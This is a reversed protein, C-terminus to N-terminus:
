NDIKLLNKAVRFVYSNMPQMAKLTRKFFLRFEMSNNLKKDLHFEMLNNVGQRQKVSCTM